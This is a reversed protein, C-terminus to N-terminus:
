DVKQKESFIPLFILLHRKQFDCCKKFYLLYPFNQLYFNFIDYDEDHFLIFCIKQLDNKIICVRIIFSILYNLNVRHYLTINKQRELNWPPFFCYNNRHILVDQAESFSQPIILQLDSKFFMYGILRVSLLFDSVDNAFSEFIWTYSKVSALCKSGM